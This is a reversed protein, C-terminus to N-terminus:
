EGVMSAGIDPTKPPVIRVPGNWDSKPVRCILRNGLWVEAGGSYANAIHLATMLAEAETEAHMMIPPAKFLGRGTIPYFRYEPM